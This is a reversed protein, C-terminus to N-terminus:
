FSCEQAELQIRIEDGQEDVIREFCNGELDRLLRRGSAVATPTSRTQTQDVYVIERTRTAPTDRYVVTEVNRSPYRPYNFL